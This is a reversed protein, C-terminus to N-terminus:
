FEPGGLQPPQVRRWLTLAFFVVAATKLLVALAVGVGTHWGNAAM